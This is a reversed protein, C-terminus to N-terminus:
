YSQLQLISHEFVLYNVIKISSSIYFKIEMYKYKQLMYYWNKVCNKLM